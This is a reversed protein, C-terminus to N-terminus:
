YRASFRHAISELYRPSLGSYRNAIAEQARELGRPLELINEMALVTQLRDRWERLEDSVQPVAKFNVVIARQARLRFLSEDPPVLFIADIPTHDSAWDCLALYDQEVASEQPDGYWRYCW